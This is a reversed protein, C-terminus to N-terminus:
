FERNYNQKSFNEITTKGAFCNCKVSWFDLIAEEQQLEEVEVRTKNNPVGKLMM